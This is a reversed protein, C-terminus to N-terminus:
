SISKIESKTSRRKQFRELRILNVLDLGDLDIGVLDLPVGDLGFVHDNEGDLDECGIM